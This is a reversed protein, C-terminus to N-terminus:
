TGRAHEATAPQGASEMIEAMAHYNGSCRALEQAVFEMDIDSSDEPKDDSHLGTAILLLILSISRVFMEM